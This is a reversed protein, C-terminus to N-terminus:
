FEAGVVFFLGKVTLNTYIDSIDEIKLKEYRYGGAVYFPRIPKVRAELSWDYYKAKSYSIGRIEGRLSVPVKPINIGLGAYLMPIPITATESETVTQGTQADQGTISGKFNIVRLNLGVEPDILPNSFVNGYLGLDFRDLEVKSSINANASFTRDGYRINKNINGSGSFRMPVYQAYLNPILPIPHELKLRVFARTEKGLGLTDRVSIVDGDPVPYQIVGSPKQEMGGVSIDFGIAYSLSTFVACTLFGYKVFKM